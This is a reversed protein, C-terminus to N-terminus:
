VSQVVEEDTLLSRHYMSTHHLPRITYRCLPCKLIYNHARLKQFCKVHLFHGCPMYYVMKKHTQQLCISCEANDVCNLKIVMRNTQAACQQANFVM